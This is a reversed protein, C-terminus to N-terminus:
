KQYADANRITEITYGPRVLRVSPRSVSSLLSDPNWCMVKGSFSDLDVLFYPRSSSTLNTHILSVHVRRKESYNQLCIRRNTQWLMLLSFFVCFMTSSIPVVGFQKLVAKFMVESISSMCVDVGKRRPKGLPTKRKEAQMCTEQIHFIKDSPTGCSALVSQPINDWASPPPPTM